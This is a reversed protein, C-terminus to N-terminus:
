ALANFRSALQNHEIVSANGNAIVHFYKESAVCLYIESLSDVNLTRILVCLEREDDHAAM